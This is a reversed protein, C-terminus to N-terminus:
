LRSKEAQAVSLIHQATAEGAVGFNAVFRDRVARVMEPAPSELTEDVLRPLAAIDDDGIVVCLEEAIGIEWIEHEVDEAEHGRGDFYPNISIVPRNFLFLFDFIIGSLDTVLMTARAMSADGSAATDLEIAEHGAALDQLAAFIAPESLRTQPHPRVIVRYGHDALAQICATGHRAFLAHPGWTPALLVTRREPASTSLHDVMFDYYTLGTIVLDKAPLGRTAELARISRVQHPGSCCVSDFYDFAFKRYVLADTPAHIVHIYHQVHKSRKLMMIDLQPTTMVVVKARLRRMHMYGSSSSGICLSIVNADDLTLGPDDPSQSLYHVAVGAASLTRIVPAFVRWTHPGESFFVIQHVMSATSHDASRGLVGILLEKLRQGARRAAYAIATALALLAYLLMSGSGPDLYAFAPAPLFLYCSLLIALDPRKM